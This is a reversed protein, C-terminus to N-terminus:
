QDNPDISLMVTQPPSNRFQASVSEQAENREREIKALCRECYADGEFPEGCKDCQDLNQKLSEIEALLSAVALLQNPSFGLGTGGPDLMVRSRDMLGRLRALASVDEAHQRDRAAAAEHSQARLRAIEAMQEDVRGELAARESLAQNVSNVTIVLVDQLEEIKGAPRGVVQAPHRGLLGLDAELEPSCAGRVADDLAGADSPPRVQEAALESRATLEADRAETCIIGMLNKHSIM